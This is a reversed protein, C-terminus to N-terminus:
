SPKFPVRGLALYRSGSPTQVSQYLVLEGAEFAMAPPPEQFGTVAQAVKFRAVTLHAQFPRADFPVESVQLERRLREVLVRLSPQEELGLWLVRASDHKPFGGLRATKLTFVTQGAAVKRAAALLAPVASQEVEGLFVLTVHLGQPAPWSGAAVMRRARAQFGALEAQIWEPLPLAFFVRVVPGAGM